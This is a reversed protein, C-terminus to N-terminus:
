VRNYDDAIRVVDKLDSTSAELYISRKSKSFMRHIEKKNLTFFEGTKLKKIKLNKLSKGHLIFLPGDVVYITEIKKKHYQLSCRNNKKMYLKKLCYRDNLEILEEYGWPKNIKNAKM